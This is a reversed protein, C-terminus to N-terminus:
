QRRQIVRVNSRGDGRVTKRLKEFLMYAGALLLFVVAAAAAAIVALLVIPVAFVLLFTIAVARLVWSPQRSVMHWTEIVRASGRSAHRSFHDFPANM